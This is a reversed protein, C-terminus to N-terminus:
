SLVTIHLNMKGTIREMDMGSIIITILKMTLFRLTKLCMLKLEWEMLVTEVFTVSIYLYFWMTGNFVFEMDMKKGKMMLLVQTNM